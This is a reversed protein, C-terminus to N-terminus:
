NRTLVLSLSENSSLIFQHSTKCLKSVIKCPCFTKSQITELSLTCQKLKGDVYSCVLYYPDKWQVCFKVQLAQYNSCAVCDSVHSSFSYELWQKVSLPTTFVEPYCEPYYHVAYYKPYHMIDHYVNLPPCDDIDLVQPVQCSFKQM